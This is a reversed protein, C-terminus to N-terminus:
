NGENIQDVQKLVQIKTKEENSTPDTTIQGLYLKKDECVAVYNACPSLAILQPWIGFDTTCIITKNDMDYLKLHQKRSETYFIRRQFIKFFYVFMEQGSADKEDSLNDFEDCLSNSGCSFEAIKTNTVRAYIHGRTEDAEIMNNIEKITKDSAKDDKHTFTIKETFYNLRKYELDKTLYWVCDSQDFKVDMIQRNEGEQYECEVKGDELNVVIMKNNFGAFVLRTGSQNIDM